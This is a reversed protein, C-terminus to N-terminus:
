FQVKQKKERKSARWRKTLPGKMQHAQEPTLYDCSGHPRLINYNEIAWRIKEEAAQIDFFCRNMLMDEARVAGCTTKVLRDGKKILLDNDILLNDLKDRGVKIGHCLRFETLQYHLVDVGVSPLDLRLIRVESLLMLNHFEEKELQKQADYWAQRSKEIPDIVIHSFNGLSFDSRRLSM